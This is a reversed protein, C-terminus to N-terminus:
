ITEDRHLLKFQGTKYLLVIKKGQWHHADAVEIAEVIFKPSVKDMENIKTVDRGQEHAAAFWPFYVSPNVFSVEVSFVVSPKSELGIIVELLAKAMDEKVKWYYSVGHHKLVRLGRKKRSPLTM